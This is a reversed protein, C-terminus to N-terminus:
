TFYRRAKAYNVKGGDNNQEKYRAIDGLCIMTRQCSLLALKNARSLNEPSLTHPDLFKSLDFNFTSQLKELLSEYFVTGQFLFLCFLYTDDNLIKFFM